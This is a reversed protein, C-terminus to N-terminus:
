VPAVLLALRVLLAAACTYSCVRLAATARPRGPATFEAAGFAGWFGAQVFTTGADLGTSGPDFAASLALLLSAVGLGVFLRGPWRSHHLREFLWEERSPVFRSM